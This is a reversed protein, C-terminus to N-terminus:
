HQSKAWSTLWNEMVFHAYLFNRWDAKGDLHERYLRKVFDTDMVSSLAEPNIELSRDKFWQGIPIGFGKKKRNLIEVPLAKALAQKLIFKTEGNKFKLDAPISRVVNVFDIDLFPSRVELSNLMGARDMKTLIDSQLYLEIFFQSVQDIQTGTPVAQWADLAESFLNDLSLRQGFLRELHGIPLCSMWIPNQFEKKFGLGSLFRKLKFDFSMNRHSVPIRNAARSLLQHFFAPVLSNYLQAPRLAKFPDYGAFLEDAGDGGLAVTVSEKATECLLYAPLLSPDAMPEDLRTLVPGILDSCKKLSFQTHHHDTGLLHAIASSFPTEDFSKDDFGISFTKLDRGNPSASALAAITSSDIGGSLFVGIPVDAEMRREVSRYLSEVLEQEMEPSSVRWQDAPDPEYRWYREVKWSLSQANLILSHSAPLRKVGEIMSSDGPLYGHGFYKIVQSKDVGPLKKFYAGLSLLESSFVFSDRGLFYYLPKKGFRDRSLWIEKRDRDYLAFAWMGNLRDLLSRGWERYGHILVETDAHDSRFQHGKKELDSRLEQHNYIEGNFVVVVREDASMMPQDGTQLDVISLRKHGLVVGEQDTWIGDGDPGRHNLAALMREIDSIKGARCIGAIGCM